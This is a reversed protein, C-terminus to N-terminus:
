KVPTDLKFKCNAPRKGDKPEHMGDIMAETNERAENLM